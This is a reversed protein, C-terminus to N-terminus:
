ELAQLFGLLGRERQVSGRHNLADRQNPNELDPSEMM